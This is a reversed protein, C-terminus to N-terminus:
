PEDEKAFLVQQDLTVFSDSEDDDLVRRRRVAFSAFSEKAAATPDLPTVVDDIDDTRRGNRLQLRIQNKKSEELASAPSDMLGRVAAHVGEEVRRLEERLPEYLYFAFVVVCVLTVFILFATLADRLGGPVDPWFYILGFNLTVAIASLSFAEVNNHMKETNPKLWLQLTLALMMIWMACYNQLEPLDKSIFVTVMALLLKRVMIVAQWYWFESKYGGVLFMFVFNTLEPKGLRGKFFVYACVFGLPIGFGYGVAFLLGPTTLVSTGNDDCKMSMDVELYSQGPGLNVCKLVDSAQKILTLYLTFVIVCVSTTFVFYFPYKERILALKTTSGLARIEDEIEQQLADSLVPQKKLFRLVAFLVISVCPAALPLCMYGVFVSIYTRNFYKLMCDLTQFGAMNVSSAGGQINLLSRLFPSFQQSFEGLQGTTQMHNVITRLVISINTTKQDRLTSFSWVLLIVFGVIVAVCFVLVTPVVGLCEQCLTTKTKGFGAECLSCLPGTSGNYCKSGVGSTTEGLCADLIPCLFIEVSANPARWYGPRLLVVSSGNCTAGASLCPNCQDTNKVKYELANCLETEFIPTTCPKLGPNTFVTRYHVSHVFPATSQSFQLVKYIGVYNVESDASSNSVIVWGSATQKQVSAAATPIGFAINSCINGLSDVVFVKVAKLVSSKPVAYLATSDAFQFLNAIALGFPAGEVITVALTALTPSGNVESMFSLVFTGSRPSLVTIKSFEVIGTRPQSTNCLGDDSTSNYLITINRCPPWPFGDGDLRWAAFDAEICADESVKQLFCVTLPSPDLDGLANGLIDVTSISASITTVPTSRYETLGTANIRSANGVILFNLPSGSFQQGDLAIDLAYEAQTAPPRLCIVKSPNVFTMPVYLANRDGASSTFIKPTFRCVGYSSGVFNSGLVTVSGNQFGSDKVPLLRLMEPKQVRRLKLGSDTAYDGGFLSVDVSLGSCSHTTTISGLAPARCQVLSPSLFTAPSVTNNFLCTTSETFGSGTVNIVTGFRVDALSPAISIIDCTLFVGLTLSSVFSAVTFLASVSSATAMAYVVEPILSTRGQVLNLKKVGYSAFRSSDLRIKTLVSLSANSQLALYLANSRREVTMATPVAFTQQMTTVLVSWQERTCNSCSLSELQGKGAVQCVGDIWILPQQDQAQHMQALLPRLWAVATDNATSIALVVGTDILLARVASLCTRNCGGGSLDLSPWCPVLRRLSPQGGGVPVRPTEESPVIDYLLGEWSSLSSNILQMSGSFLVRFLSIRSTTLPTVQIDRAAFGTPFPIPSSIVTVNVTSCAVLSTGCTMNLTMNLVAFRWAWGVSWVAVTLNGASGSAVLVSRVGETLNAIRTHVIFEVSSRQFTLVHFASGFVVSLQLYLDSTSVGAFFAGLPVQKSISDSMNKMLSPSITSVNVVMIPSNGVFLRGYADDVFALTVNGYPDTYPAAANGEVAQLRTILVNRETCRAGIYGAACISCSAGSFHGLLDSDFCVCNGSFKSCSGRGNCQCTEACSPGWFGPACNANCTGDPGRAWHGLREHVLCECAGTLANCQSNKGLHQCTVEADCFIDCRISYYLEQCSCTGDNSCQGHGSCYAGSANKPCETDCSAGSWYPECACATGVTKGRVCKEECQPGYRGAACENCRGSFNPHCVCTSCNEFSPNRDCSPDCRGHESNCLCVVDCVKGTWGPFCECFATGSVNTACRGNGKCPKGIAKPCEDSCSPGVFLDRCQCRGTATDCVGQTAGSCVKSNAGVPCSANCSEGFYGPYCRCKGAENCLGNGSCILGSNDACSM